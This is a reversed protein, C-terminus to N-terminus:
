GRASRSAPCRKFEVDAIRGHGVPPLWDGELLDLCITGNGQAFLDKRGTKDRISKVFLPIPHEVRQLRITVM